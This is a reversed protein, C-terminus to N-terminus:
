AEPLARIGDNSFGLVKFTNRAIRTYNQRAAAFTLAKGTVGLHQAIVLTLVAATADRLARLGPGTLFKRHLAKQQASHAVLNRHRKLSGLWSEQDIKVAAWVEEPLMKGLAQARVAFSPENGLFYTDPLGIARTVDKLNIFQEATLVGPANTWADSLRDIATAYLLFDPELYGPRALISSLVQPIPRLDDMMEWWNSIIEQTNARGLRVPFDRYDLHGTPSAKVTTRGFVRIQTGDQTEVQLSLRATSRQSAFTLLRQFADLQTEFHELTRPVLSSFEVRGPAYLLTMEPADELAPIHLLDQSLRAAGDRWYHEVVHDAHEFKASAKVLLVDANDTGVRLDGLELLDRGERSHVSGRMYVPGSSSMGRVETPPVVRSDPSTSVPWNHKSELWKDDKNSVVTGSHTVAQHSWTVALPFSVATEPNPM